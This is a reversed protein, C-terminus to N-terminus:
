LIDKDNNPEIILSEGCSNYYLRGDKTYWTYKEAISQSFSGLMIHEEPYPSKLDRCLGDNVYHYVITEYKEPLGIYKITRAKYYMNFLMEDIFPETRQIFYYIRKYIMYLTYIFLAHNFTISLTYNNFWLEYFFYLIIFMTPLTYLILSYVIVLPRIVFDKKTLQIILKSTYYVLARLTNNLGFLILRNYRRYPQKQNNKPDAICIIFRKIIETIFIQNIKIWIYIFLVGLLFLIIVILSTDFTSEGTCFDTIKYLQYRLDIAKYLFSTRLYFLLYGNFVIYILISIKNLLINNIKYKYLNKKIDLEQPKQTIWLYYSFVVLLAILALKSLPDEYFLTIITKKIM